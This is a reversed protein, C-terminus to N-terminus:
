LVNSAGESFGLSSCAERPVQPLRGFSNARPIPANGGHNPITKSQWRAISIFAVAAFFHDAAIITDAAVRYSGDRNAMKKSRLVCPCTETKSVQTFACEIKRLRRVSGFNTRRRGLAFLPSVDRWCSLPFKRFHRKTDFAHSFRM